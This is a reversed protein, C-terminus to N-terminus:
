LDKDKLLQLEKEKEQIKLKRLEELDALKKKTAQIQELVSLGDDKPIQPTVPAQPPQPPAVPPSVPPPQVEVERPVIVQKTRPNIINGSTDIRESTKTPKSSIFTKGMINGGFQRLEELKSLLASFL